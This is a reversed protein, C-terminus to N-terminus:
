MQDELKAESEEYIDKRGNKNFDIWGKHYMETKAPKYVAPIRVETEKDATASAPLMGALALCM